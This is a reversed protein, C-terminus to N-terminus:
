LMMCESHLFIKRNIYCHEPFKADTFIEWWITNKVSSNFCRLTGVPTQNSMLNRIKFELILPHQAAREFKRGFDTLNMSCASCYTTWQMTFSM